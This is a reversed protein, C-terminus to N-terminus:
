IDQRGYLPKNFLGSTCNINVKIGSAIAVGVWFTFSSQQNKYESSHAMEIGYIDIEKYGKYIALALTYDASSCFNEVQKGSVTINALLKEKIEELPYQAANKVEAHVDIMYVPQDIDKLWEFYEADKYGSIYFSREHIEIVADFRKCWEAHAHHSITWIDFSDDNWPANDRTLEQAGVIALKNM